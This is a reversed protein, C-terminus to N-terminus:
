DPGISCYPGNMASPDLVSSPNHDNYINAMALLTLAKIEEDRNLDSIDIGLIQTLV